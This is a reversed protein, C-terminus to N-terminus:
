RELVNRLKRVAAFSQPRCVSCADIMLLIAPQTVGGALPTIGSDQCKIGTSLTDTSNIPAFVMVVSNKGNCECPARWTVRASKSCHQRPKAFCMQRAPESFYMEHNRGMIIGHFFSHSNELKLGLRKSVFHGNGIHLWSPCSSIQTRFEYRATLYINGFFNAALQSPQVQKSCSPLDSPQLRCTRLSIDDITRRRLPSVASTDDAM